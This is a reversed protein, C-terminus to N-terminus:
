DRDLQWRQGIRLDHAARALAVTPDDRLDFGAIRFGRAFRHASVKLLRALAHSRHQIPGPL